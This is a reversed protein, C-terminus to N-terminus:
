VLITERQLSRQSTWLPVALGVGMWDMEQKYVVYVFRGLQRM